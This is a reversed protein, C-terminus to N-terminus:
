GEPDNFVEFLHAEKEVSELARELSQDGPSIKGPVYEPYGALMIQNEIIGRWTRFTARRQDPTLTGWARGSLKGTYALRFERAIALADTGHERVALYLVELLEVLLCEWRWQQDQPLKNLVETALTQDQMFEAHILNFMASARKLAESPEEGDELAQIASLPSLASVWKHIARKRKLDDKSVLGAFLDGAAETQDPYRPHRKRIADRQAECVGCDLACAHNPHWRPCDDPAEGGPEDEFISFSKTGCTNCTHVISIPKDECELTWGSENWVSAFCSQRHPCDKVPCTVRYTPEM